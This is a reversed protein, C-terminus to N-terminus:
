RSSNIPNSMYILCLCTMYVYIKNVLVIIETVHKDMGTIRVILDYLKVFLIM